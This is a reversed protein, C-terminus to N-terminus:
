YKGFDCTKKLILNNSLGFATSPVFCLETWHSSLFCSDSQSHGILHYAPRLFGRVASSWDVNTDKETEVDLVM